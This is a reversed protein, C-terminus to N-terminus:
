ERQEIIYSTISVLIHTLLNYYCRINHSPPRVVSVITKGELLTKMNFYQHELKKFIKEVLAIEIDETIQMTDCMSQVCLLQITM